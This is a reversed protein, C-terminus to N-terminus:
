DVELEKIRMDKGGTVQIQHGQCLPCPEYLSSCHVPQACDLCWGVGPVSEVIVEADQALTNKAVADFCFLLSEVEVSSLQGIELWIKNVKTFQQDRAHDELLQIMGEALSMEHM